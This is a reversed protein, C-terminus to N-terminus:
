FLTLALTRAAAQVDRSLAPKAEIKGREAAEAIQHCPLQEM